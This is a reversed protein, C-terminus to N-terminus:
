LNRFWRSHNLLWVGLRTNRKVRWLVERSKEWWSLEEWTISRRALYRVKMDEALEAVALCADCLSTHPADFSTIWDNHTPENPTEKGCHICTYHEEPM